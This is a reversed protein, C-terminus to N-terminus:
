CRWGRLEVITIHHLPVLALLFPATSWRGGNGVGLGCPLQSYSWYVNVEMGQTLAPNCGGARGGTAHPLCLSNNILLFFFTLSDTM